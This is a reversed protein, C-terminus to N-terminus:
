APIGRLIFLDTLTDIVDTANLKRKIQIELCERSVEDVLNLTRFARGDDTRYHVFGYSQVHNRYTPRSRICSDDNLWLRRM